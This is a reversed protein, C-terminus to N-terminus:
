KEGHEAESDNKVLAESADYSECDPYKFTPVQLFSGKCTFYFHDKLGVGGCFIYTTPNSPKKRVLEM